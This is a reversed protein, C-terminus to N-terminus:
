SQEEKTSSATGEPGAADSGVREAEKELRRTEALEEEEQALEALRAQIDPSQVWAEIEDGPLQWEDRHETAVFGEKFSQHLAAAKSRPTWMSRLAALVFGPPEELYDALIALALDAPGSGAYGWEFGDPSHHAVHTLPRRESLGGAVVDQVVVSAEGRGTSDPDFVRTGSYVKM